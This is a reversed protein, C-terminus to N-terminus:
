SHWLGLQSEYKESPYTLWWGAYFGWPLQVDAFDDLDCLAEARPMWLQGQRLHRRLHTWRGPFHLSSNELISHDHKRFNQPNYGHLFNLTFIPNLCTWVHEFMNLCTWTLQSSLVLDILGSYHFPPKVKLFDHIGDGFWPDLHDISKPFWVHKLM